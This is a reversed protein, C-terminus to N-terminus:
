VDPNVYLFLLKVFIFPEQSFNASIIIRSVCKVDLQKFYAEVFVKYFMKGTVRIVDINIPEIIIFSVRHFLLFLQSFM